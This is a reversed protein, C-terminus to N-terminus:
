PPAGAAINLVIWTGFEPDDLVYDSRGDLRLVLKLRMLRRLAAQLQAPSPAPEGLAAGISARSAEAFPSGGGFAFHALLARQLPALALWTRDYGLDSALRARLAHVCAEVDRKPDLALLELLKRLFFPSAHAAQFAALVKARPLSVGIIKVFTALLHDVFAEGLPPLDISTAFQFFPAARRAFMANLGDRNSGTFVAAINAKRTDLSTRLAAILSASAPDAALEQVEDFLILAKHKGASLKGFLDDIRTLADGAPETASKFELAAEGSIGAAGGGFKMSPTLGQTARSIRAALSGGQVAADLARTLVVAPALPSAWFNVYVVTRKAKEAVPALDKLLFETKGTRRRGFLVLAHALGKDILAFHRQALDARPFHWPDISAAM